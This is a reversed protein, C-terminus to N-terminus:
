SGLVVANMEMSRCPRTRPRASAGWEPWCTTSFVAAMAVLRFAAPPVIMRTVTPNERVIGISDVLRGILRQVKRFAAQRGCSKGHRRLNRGKGGIDMDDLMVPAGKVAGLHIQLQAAATDPRHDKGADGGIEADFRGYAIGERMVIGDDGGLIRHGAKRRLHM